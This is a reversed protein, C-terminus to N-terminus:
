INKHHVVVVLIMIHELLISVFSILGLFLILLLKEKKLIKDYYEKGLLDFIKVKDFDNLGLIKWIDGEKLPNPTIVFKRNEYM